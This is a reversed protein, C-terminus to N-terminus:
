SSRRVTATLRNTTGVREYRLDDTLERVLHLGMGGPRRHELPADVDLAPADFPDFPARGDEIVVTVATADIDIRVTADDPGRDDPHEILNVVIEEVVLQAVSAAHADVSAGALFAAVQRETAAFADLQLPVTWRESRGGTM